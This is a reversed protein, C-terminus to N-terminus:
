LTKSKFFFYIYKRIKWLKLKFFTKKPRLTSNVLFSKRPYIFTKKEKFFFFPFFNTYSYSFYCDTFMLKNAFIHAKDYTYIKM